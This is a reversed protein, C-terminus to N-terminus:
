YPSTCSHRGAFMGGIAARVKALADSHGIEYGRMYARAEAETPPSTSKGEQQAEIACPEEKDTM